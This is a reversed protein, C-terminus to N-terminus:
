PQQGTTVVPSWHCVCVCVMRHKPPDKPRLVLPLRYLFHWAYQNVLSYGILTYGIMCLHLWSCTSQNIATPMCHNTHNYKGQNSISKAWVIHGMSSQFPNAFYLKMRCRKFWHQLVIPCKISINAILFFCCIKCLIRVDIELHAYIISKISKRHLWACARVWWRRTGSPVMSCTATSLGNSIMTGQKCPAAWFSTLPFWVAPCFEEYFESWEGNPFAESVMCSQITSSGMELNTWRLTCNMTNFVVLMWWRIAAWIWSLPHKLWVTSPRSTTKQGSIRLVPIAQGIRLMLDWRHEWCASGLDDVAPGPDGYIM